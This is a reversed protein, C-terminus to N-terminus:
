ALLERVAALAAEFDPFMGIQPCYEIYTIKDDRDIVFIARQELRWEKIYTGYALGFSMDQHDSIVQIRDIGAAGCWRRQNFPHEASVTLIVVDDGFNAAEENFRRTQQDCIGTDLSPVVSILRIKGASDALSVTSLDNAVLTFAPATDGVQLPMGLLTLPNDRVTVGGPREAVTM